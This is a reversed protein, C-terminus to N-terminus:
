RFTSKLIEHYVRAKTYWARPDDAVESDQFAEDIAAKAAEIAALREKEQRELDRQRSLHVILFSGM